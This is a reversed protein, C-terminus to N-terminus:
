KKGEKSDGDTKPAQSAQQQEIIQNRLSAMLDVVENFPLLGLAKGLKDVDAAKIKLVYDTPAQQAYSATHSIVLLLGIVLLKKM